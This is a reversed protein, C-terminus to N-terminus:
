PISEIDIWPQWIPEGNFFVDYVENHWDNAVDLELARPDSFDRWPEAILEGEGSELDAMLLLYAISRDEQVDRFKAILEETTDDGFAAAEMDSNTAVEEVHPFYQKKNFALMTWASDPLSSAIAAAKVKAHSPDDTNLEIVAVEFRPRCVRVFRRQNKSM